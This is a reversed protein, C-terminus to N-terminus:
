SEVRQDDVIREIARGAALAFERQDARYNYHCKLDVGFDDFLTSVAKALNSGFICFNVLADPWGMPAPSHPAVEGDEDERQYSFSM